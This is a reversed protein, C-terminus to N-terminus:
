LSHKTVPEWPLTGRLLRHLGSAVGTEARHLAELFICPVDDITEGVIRRTLKENTVAEAVLPRDIGLLRSAEEILTEEPVACHGSQSLEGLVHTIGAEARMLSNKAVGLSTAIADATQFGIGEIDLSLRYPNETITAIARERYRRYIKWARAEGVGHPRQQLNEVAELLDFLAQHALVRREERGEALREDVVGALLGQADDGVV